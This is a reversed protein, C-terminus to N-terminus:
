GEFALPGFGFEGFEVIVPFRLGAATASFEIPGGRPPIPNAVRAFAQRSGAGARSRACVRIEGYGGIQSCEVNVAIM